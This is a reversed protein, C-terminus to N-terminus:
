HQQKALLAKTIKATKGGTPLTELYMRTDSNKIQGNHEVLLEQFFELLTALGVPVMRMEGQLTNELIQIVADAHTESLRAIESLSAVLRKPRNKGSHIYASLRKGLKTVDLREEDIAAICADRTSVLCELDSHILGIAMLEYAKTELPAGSQSLMSFYGAIGHEYASIGDITAAARRVGAALVCERLNPLCTEQLNITSLQDAVQLLAGTGFNPLYATDIPGRMYLTARHLASSTTESLPEPKQTERKQSPTGPGLLLSRFAERLDHCLEPRQTLAEREDKPTRLLALTLDVDPPSQGAANWKKHRAILQTPEIWGGIHTPASLLPLFLGNRIRQLIAKFQLQFFDILPYLKDTEGLRPAATPELACQLFDAYAIQFQPNNTSKGTLIKLARTRLPAILNNTQENREINIQSIADAVREIEYVLQPHELSYSAVTLLETTSEIPMVKTCCKLPWGKLHVNNMAYASDASISPLTATAQPLGLFPTLRKKASSSVTEAYVKLKAELQLDGTTAFKELVDCVKMQVDLADHQLADVTTRIYQQSLAPSRTAGHELLGLAAIIPGKQRLVFTLPVYNVLIAQPLPQSKDIVTLAKVAFSVTPTISSGLLTAYLETLTLREALSPKLLEHFNSFWSSSNQPFDKSLAILSERLLRDRSLHGQEALTKIVKAWGGDTRYKDLSSLSRGQSSNVDFFRWVTDNLFNPELLLPDIEEATALTTLHRNGAIQWAFVAADSKPPHCVDIKCLEQVLNFYSDSQELLVDGFSRLAIPKLEKLMTIDFPKSLLIDWTQNKLQKESATALVALADFSEVFSRGTHFVTGGVETTENSPKCAARYNAIARTAFKSREADTTGSLFSHLELLNRRSLIDTFTQLKYDSKQM